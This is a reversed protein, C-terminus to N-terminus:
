ATQCEKGTRLREIHSAYFRAYVIPATAHGRRTRRSLKRGTETQSTCRGYNAYKNVTTVVPNLWIYRLPIAKKMARIGCLILSERREDFRYGRRYKISIGTHLM